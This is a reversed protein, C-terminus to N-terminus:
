SLDEPKPCLVFREGDRKENAQELRDIKQHALYAEPRVVRLEFRM